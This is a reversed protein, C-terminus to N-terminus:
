RRRRVTRYHRRVTRTRRYKRRSYSRSNSDVFGDKIHRVRKVKTIPHFTRYLKHRTRRGFLFGAQAPPAAGCILVATLLGLALRTTNGM